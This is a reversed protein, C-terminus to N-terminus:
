VAVTKLGKKAADCNLAKLIHEKGVLVDSVCRHIAKTFAEYVVRLAHANLPVHAESM